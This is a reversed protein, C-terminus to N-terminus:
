EFMWLIISEATRTGEFKVFRAGNNLALVVSPFGSVEFRKAIDKYNHGDVKAFPIGEEKM